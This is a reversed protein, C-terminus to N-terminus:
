APATLLSIPSPEGAEDAELGAQGLLSRTIVRRVRQLAAIVLKPQAARLLRLPIPLSLVWQRVPAQAPPRPEGPAGGDPGEPARRTLRLNRKRLASRACPDLNVSLISM